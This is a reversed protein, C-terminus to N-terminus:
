GTKSFDAGAAFSISIPAPLMKDLEILLSDDDAMRAIAKGVVVFARLMAGEHSRERKGGPWHRIAFIEVKNFSSTVAAGLEPKREAPGRHLLLAPFRREIPDLAVAGPPVEGKGAKSRDVFGFRHGVDAIELCVGVRVPAARSQRRLEFPFSRTRSQGDFAVEDVRLTKM